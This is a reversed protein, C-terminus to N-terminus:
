TNKPFSILLGYSLVTLTNGAAGKNVYLSVTIPGVYSVSGLREHARLSHYRTSLITNEHHEAMLRLPQTFVDFLIGIRGVTGATTSLEVNVFGEIDIMTSSLTGAPNFTVSTVLSNTTTNHISPSFNSFNYKQNNQSLAYTAVALETPVALDSNGAMTGDSSFENIGVGNRLSLSSDTGIKMALVSSSLYLGFENSYIKLSELNASGGSAGLSLITSATEAFVNVVSSSPYFTLSGAELKKAHLKGWRATTTGLQYTDTVLSGSVQPVISGELWDFKSEVGSASFKKGDAIVPWTTGAM